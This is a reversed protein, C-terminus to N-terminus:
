NNSITAVVYESQTGIRFKGGWLGIGSTVYYQTDGKKLPGYADEYIADEIWSIPWVQGYHTHGSLQFDVGAGQSKELNYPQHDLLLTFRKKDVGIALDSVSQRTKNSRDDRGIINIGKVTVAEDKLLNIGARKYFDISGSVGALYEHNGLCAYIPAKLRHFDSSLDQYDIARISGDIIDGAILIMDPNEANIIDIWRNFEAKRNTYGLHMDAIMVIKLPKEIKKETTITMPVRIKNNYHINAAVFLVIMWLTAGITGKMSNHLLAAPVIHLLRGIDLVLFTLVLYMLIFLWATTTEYLATSLPFPMSDIDVIFVAFFMVSLLALLFVIIWKIPNSFPLIQWVHWLVYINGLLPLLTFAFIWIKM